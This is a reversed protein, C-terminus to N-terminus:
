RSASIGLKVANLTRALGITIQSEQGDPIAPCAIPQGAKSICLEVDNLLGDQMCGVAIDQVPVTPNSNAFAAQVDAGAEQFQRSLNLLVFPIVISSSAKRIFAFYDSFSLGSCTSKSWEHHIITAPILATSLPPNSPGRVDSRNGSWKGENYESWLGSIVFSKGGTVCEPNSGNTACFQPSWSLAFLSSDLVGPRAAQHATLAPCQKTVLLALVMLRAFVVSPHDHMKMARM